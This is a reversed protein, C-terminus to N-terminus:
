EPSVLMADDVDSNAKKLWQMAGKSSFVLVSM